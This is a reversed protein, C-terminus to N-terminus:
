LMAEHTYVPICIFLFLVDSWLYLSYRLYIFLYEMPEHTCVPAFLYFYEM